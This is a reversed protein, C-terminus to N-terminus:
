IRIGILCVDDVQPLAGKWKDFEEELINKQKECPESSIKVLLDQLSRYKFKKGNPGGSQDAFGDSLTYIM